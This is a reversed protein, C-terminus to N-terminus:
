KYIIQQKNWLHIPRIRTDIRVEFWEKCARECFEVDESTTRRQGNVTIDWFEFPYWKYTEWLKKFVKKKILMCWAWWADIKHLYKTTNDFEKVFEYYDLLETKGNKEIKREEKYYACINHIWDKNPNRTLITAIVIDKDDELMKILTDQSVPNDDDIMLVYDSDTQIAQEIIYNRAKEIRMRELILVSCPLPKILRLLSNVTQWSFYWSWCPLWLLVKKTHNKM